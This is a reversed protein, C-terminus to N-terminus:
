LADVEAVARLKLESIREQMANILRSRPEWWQMGAVESALEEDRFVDRIWAAFDNYGERLHYDIARQDVKKLKDVFMELNHAVFNTHVIKGGKRMNFYFAEEDSVTRLLNENGEGSDSGNGDFRVYRKITNDVTSRHPITVYPWIKGNLVEVEKGLECNAGIIADKISANEETLTREGIFCQELSSNKGIYVDEFLVANPGVSCGEEVVASDGIVTPGTIGSGNIEVNEGIFVDRKAKKLM